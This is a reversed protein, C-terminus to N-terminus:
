GNLHQKEFFFQQKDEYNVYYFIQEAINASSALIM